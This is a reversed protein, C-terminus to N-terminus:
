SKKARKTHIRVTIEEPESYAFCPGGSGPTVAYTSRVGDITAEIQDDEEPEFQAGDQTLLEAPLIFDRTRWTRLFGDGQEQSHETQGVTARIAIPSGPQRRRRYVLEVSEHEDFVRALMRSGRELLGM